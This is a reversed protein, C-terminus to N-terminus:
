RVLLMGMGYARGTGIGGQWAEMFQQKDTVELVGSFHVAAFALPGVRHMGTILTQGGIRIQQLHFGHQSGKRMLWAMMGDPSTIPVRLKNRYGENTHSTFPMTLLEFRLYPSMLLQAEMRDLSKTHIREGKTYATDPPVQSRIYVAQEAPNVRYLIRGSVRDTQFLRLVRKHMKECDQLCSIDYEKQLSLQLKTLYM